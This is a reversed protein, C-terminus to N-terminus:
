DKWHGTWGCPWKRSSCQWRQWLPQHLLATTPGLRYRLTNLLRLVSRIENRQTRIALLRHMDNFVMNCPARMTHSRRQQLRFGRTLPTTPSIKLSSSSIFVGKAIIILVALQMLFLLLLVNLILRFSTLLKDCVFHFQLYRITNAITYQIICIRHYISLSLCHIM